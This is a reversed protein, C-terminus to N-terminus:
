ELTATAGMEPVETQWGFTDRLRRRLADAAQPEGHTVFVRKTAPLGGIWTLLQERDAHASLSDLNAVEARITKSTATGDLLIPESM